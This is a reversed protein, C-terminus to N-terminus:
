VIVIILMSVMHELKIREPKSPYLDPDPKCNIKQTGMRKLPSLIHAVKPKRTFILETIKTYDNQINAHSKSIVLLQYRYSNPSVM